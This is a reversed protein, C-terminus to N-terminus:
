LDFLLLPALIKTIKDKNVFPVLITVYNMM